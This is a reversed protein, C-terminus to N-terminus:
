EIKAMNRKYVLVHRETSDFEPAMQTSEANHKKDVTMLSVGDAVAVRHPVYIALDAHGHIGCRRLLVWLM